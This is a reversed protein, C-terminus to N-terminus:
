NAWMKQRGCNCNTFSLLCARPWHRQAKVQPPCTTNKRRETGDSHIQNAQSPNPFSFNQSQKLLRYWIVSLVESNFEKVSELTRKRMKKKLTSHVRGEKTNTFMSQSRERWPRKLQWVLEYWRQASKNIDTIKKKKLGTYWIVSSEGTYSDEKAHISLALRESSSYEWFLTQRPNSAPDPGCLQPVQYILFAFLQLYLVKVHDNGEIGGTELSCLKLCFHWTDRKM